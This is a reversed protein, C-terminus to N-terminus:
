MDPVDISIINNVYVIIFCLNLLVISWLRTNIFKIVTLDKEVVNIYFFIALTIDIFILCCGDLVSADTIILILMANVVWAFLALPMITKITCFLSMCAIYLFFTYSCAALISLFLMSISSTLELLVFVLLFLVVWFFGDLLMFENNVHEATIMTDESMDDNNKLKDATAHYLVGYCLVGLSYLITVLDVSDINLVWPFALGISESVFTQIKPSMIIDADFLGKYVHIPVSNDMKHQSLLKDLQMEAGSLTAFVTSNQSDMGLKIGRSMQTFIDWVRRLPMMKTIDVHAFAIHYVMLRYQCSICGFVFMSQLITYYTALRIAFKSGLSLGGMAISNQHPGLTAHMYVRPSFHRM